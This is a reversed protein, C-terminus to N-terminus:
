RCAASLRPGTAGGDVSLAVAAAIKSGLCPIGSM